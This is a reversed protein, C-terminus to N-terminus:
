GLHKDMFLSITVLASYQSTPISPDMTEGAFAKNIFSAKFVGADALRGNIVRDRMWKYLSQNVMFEFKNGWSRDYAKLLGIRPHKLLRAVVYRARLLPNDGLYHLFSNHKVIPIQAVRPYYSAILEEQLIRDKRVRGPVSWIMDFLEAHLGAVYYEIYHSGARVQPILRNIGHHIFYLADYRKEPIMYSLEDISRNLSERFAGHFNSNVYISEDIDWRPDGNFLEYLRVNCKADDLGRDEFDKYYTHSQKHMDIFHGYIVADVQEQEKKILEFGHTELLSQQYNYLPMYNDVEEAFHKLSRWSMVENQLNFRDILENVVALDIGDKIGYSYNRFHVDRSLLEGLLQRSDMGGTLHIGVRKKQALMDSVANVFAQHVNTLAKERSYLASNIDGPLQWYNELILEQKKIDFVLRAGHPIKKIGSILTKCGWITNTRVLEIAALEDLQRRFSVPLDGLLLSLTTAGYLENKHVVYFFEIIGFRDIEITIKESTKAITLYAGKEKKGPYEQYLYENSVDNLSVLPFKM